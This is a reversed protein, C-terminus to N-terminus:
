VDLFKLQKMIVPPIKNIILYHQGMLYVIFHVYFSISKRKLTKHVVQFSDQFPYHKNMLM